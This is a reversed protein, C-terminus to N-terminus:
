VAYTRGGKRSYARARKWAMALGAARAERENQESGVTRAYAAGEQVCTEQAIAICLAELAYPAVWRSVTDAAVHNAETTGVAGRRLALRRYAYIDAGSAHAAVPTNAYGRRVFLTNSLVRLILMVEGGIAIMEGAAYDTGDGVTISSPISASAQAALDAGLNENTDILLRDEVVMRENGVRLLHGVGVGGTGVAPATVLDATDTGVLLDGALAGAAKSEDWWGSTGVIAARRQPSSSSGDYFSTSGSRDLELWEGPRGVRNDPRLQAGSVAVGGVTVSDVTIFDRPALYLKWTPTRTSTDDAPVDYYWTGTYPYFQREFEREIVDTAGLLARDLAEIALVNLSRDLALALSERSAYAPTSGM